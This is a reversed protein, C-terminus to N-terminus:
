RGGYFNRLKSGATVRKFNITQSPPRSYENHGKMLAENYRFAGGAKEFDGRLSYQLEQAVTMLLRLNECPIIDNPAYNQRIRVRGLISLKHCCDKAGGAKLQFRRYTPVEVTPDITALLGKESTQPNLWYLDVHHQTQTKTISTISGFNTRSFRGRPYEINVREGHVRECQEGCEPTYDTWVDGLGGSEEGQVIIHADEAEAGRSAALVRYGCSPGDFVTAAFQAREQILFDWDTGCYGVCPRDYYEYWKDVVRGPCDDIKIKLPTELDPPLSFCSNQAWVCFERIAEKGGKELYAQLVQRLFKQALVSDECAGADDAFRSIAELAERATIQYM